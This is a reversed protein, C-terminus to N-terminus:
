FKTLIKGDHFAIDLMETFAKYTALEAIKKNSGHASWIVSLSEM